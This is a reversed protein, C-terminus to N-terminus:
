PKKTVVGKQSCPNTGFSFFGLGQEVLQEKIFCEVPREVAEGQRKRTEDGTLAGEAQKLRGSVQDKTSEDSM